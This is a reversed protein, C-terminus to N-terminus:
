INDKIFNVLEYPDNVVLNYNHNLCPYTINNNSDVATTNTYRIIPIDLVKFIHYYQNEDQSRNDHIEIVKINKNAFFGMTLAGGNPTVILKSEQFIKIKELLNYNELYIIEFGLKILDNKFAKENIIQRRPTTSEPFLESCRSIYTLKYPSSSTELNNKILLQNRLFHYYKDHVYNVHLLYPEEILIINDSSDVNEVYEFDSKLLNITANIYEYKSDNKRSDKVNFLIPKPLHDVEKLAAIM